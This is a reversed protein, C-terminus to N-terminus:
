LINSSRVQMIDDFTAQLAGYFVVINMYGSGDGIVCTTVLGKTAKNTTKALVVVKLEWRTANFYSCDGEFM